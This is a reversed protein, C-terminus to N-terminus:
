LSNKRHSSVPPAAAVLRSVVSIPKKAGSASGSSDVPRLVAACIWSSNAWWAFGASGVTKSYPVGMLRTTVLEAPEGRDFQAIANQGFREALELATTRDLDLVLVGDEPPWDGRQPVARAPLSRWDRAAIERALAAAAAANAADDLKRSQPNWATVFMGSAAAHRDLLADMDASSQGIRGIAGGAADWAAYDTERYAGLLIELETIAHRDATM